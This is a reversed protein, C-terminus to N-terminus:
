GWLISVKNKLFNEKKLSCLCILDYGYIHGPNKTAFFATHKNKLQNSGIDAIGAKLKDKTLSYEIVGTKSNFDESYNQGFIDIIKQMNQPTEEQYNPYFKNFFTPLIKYTKYGKCIIFWYFETYNRSYEEFFKAFISFLPHSTHWFDKHVITDGSFVGKVNKNEVCIEIIKQTSFGQIVGADDYLVICYDKDQLDSTFNAWTINDYFTTMLNYMRKQELSQLEKIPCIKGSLGPM